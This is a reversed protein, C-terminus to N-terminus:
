QGLASMLKHACKAAKVWRLCERDPRHRQETLFNGSLNRKNYRQVAVWQGLRYGRERHWRPVACHGEREKFALLVTIARSWAAEHLPNPTKGSAM